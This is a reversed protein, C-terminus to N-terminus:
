FRSIDRGFVLSKFWFLPIMIMNRASLQKSLYGGRWALMAVLGNMTKFGKAGAVDTKTMDVVGGGFGMSVMAGVNIHRFSASQRFFFRPFPM